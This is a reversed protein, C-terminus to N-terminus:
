AKSQSAVSSAKCAISCRGLRREERRKGDARFWFTAHGRRTGAPALAAAALAAIIRECVVHELDLHLWRGHFSDSQDTQGYECDHRKRVVSGNVV